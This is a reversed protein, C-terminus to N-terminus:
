SVGHTGLPNLWLFGVKLNDLVPWHRGRKLVDFDEHALSPVIAFEDELKSFNGLWESVSQPYCIVIGLLVFLTMLDLHRLCLPSPSQVRWNGQISFFQIGKSSKHVAEAGAGDKTM